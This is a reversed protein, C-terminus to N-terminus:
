QINQFLQTNHFVNGIYDALNNCKRGCSIPFDAIGHMKDNGAGIVDAETLIGYVVGDTFHTVREADLFACNVAFVEVGKHFMGKCKIFTDDTGRLVAVQERNIFTHLINIKQNNQVAVLAAIILVAFIEKLMGHYQFIYFFAIGRCHFCPKLYMIILPVVASANRGM